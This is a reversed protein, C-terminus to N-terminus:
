FVYALLKGGLHKKIAEKHSMVGKSTSVVLIGFERAPLYRKEFKPYENVKVAHRPKIVNTDIIKGKLEIKFLGGRGDEIYEFDKIYGHRKFVELVNKILKSAKVYTEKKGVREANKIASLADALLDHRM